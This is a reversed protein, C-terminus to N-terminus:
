SDATGAGLRDDAVGGAGIRDRRLPPSADAGAVRGSGHAPNSPSAPPTETSRPEYGLTEPMLVLYLVFGAAAIAALVLFAASYGSAVIM